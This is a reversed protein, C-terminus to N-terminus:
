QIVDPLKQGLFVEGKNLVVDDLGVVARFLEVADIVQCTRGGGGEVLACAGDEGCLGAHKANEVHEFQGFSIVRADKLCRRRLDVTVRQHVGLDFAVPAVHVRVADAGAVVFAFAARFAEHEVVVAMFANIDADDADEVGVAGQHIGLIAPDDGVEDALGQPTLVDGDVAVPM